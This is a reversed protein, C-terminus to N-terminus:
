TEKRLNAWSELASATYMVFRPVVYLPLTDAGGRPNSEFRSGVSELSSSVDVTCGRLMGLMLDLLQLRETSQPTYHMSASVIDAFLRPEGLTLIRNCGGEGSWGEGEGSLGYFLVM